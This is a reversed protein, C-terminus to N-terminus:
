HCIWFIFEPFLVGSPINKVGRVLADSHTISIM